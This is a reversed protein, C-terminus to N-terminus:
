GKLKSRHNVKPTHNASPPLEGPEDEGEGMDSPEGQFPLHFKQAIPNWRSFIGALKKPETDTELFHESVYYKM